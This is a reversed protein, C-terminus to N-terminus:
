GNYRKFMENMLKKQKKTLLQKHGSMEASVELLTKWENFKNCDEGYQRGDVSDISLKNNKKAWNDMAMRLVRLKHDYEEITNSYEIKTIVSGINYTRTQDKNYIM